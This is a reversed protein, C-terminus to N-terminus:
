GIAARAHARQRGDRQDPASAQPQQHRPHRRRHVRLQRDDGRLGQRRRGLRLRQPHREHRSPRPRRLARVAEDAQRPEQRRLALHRGQRKKGCQENNMALMNGNFFNTSVRLVHMGEGPRSDQSHPIFTVKKPQAPNRIDVVWAGADPNNVRRDGRAACDEEGWHALYAYEGQPDVAVDAVQEPEDTLRLKSVLELEGWAGSGALHGTPLRAAPRSSGGRDLGGSHFRRHGFDRVSRAHEEHFGEVTTGRCGDVASLERDAVGVASDYAHSPATTVSPATDIALPLPM